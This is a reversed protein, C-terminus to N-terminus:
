KFSRVVYATGLLVATVGVVGATVKAYFLFKGPTEPDPLYPAVADAIDSAAQKVTVATDHPINAIATFISENWAAKSAQEIRLAADRLALTYLARDYFSGDPRKNAIAWPLYKAEIVKLDEWALKMQKQEYTLTAMGLFANTSFAGALGVKWLGTEYQKKVEQLQAVLKKRDEESPTSM